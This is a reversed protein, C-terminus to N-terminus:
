VGGGFKMRISWLIVKGANADIEYLVYLKPLRSIPPSKYVWYRSGRWNPHQDGCTRPNDTLCDYLSEILDGRLAM